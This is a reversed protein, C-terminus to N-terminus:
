IKSTIIKKDGFIISELKPSAILNVFIREFYKYSIKNLRMGIGYHKVSKAETDFLNKFRASQSIVELIRLSMKRGNLFGFLFLKFIHKGQLKKVSYDVGTEDALGDLLEDPVLGIIDEARWGTTKEM